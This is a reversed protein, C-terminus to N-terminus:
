YNSLYEVIDYLSNTRLNASSAAGMMTATAITNWPDVDTDTRAPEVPHCLGVKSPADSVEIDHGLLVKQTATSLEPLANLYLPVVHDLGTLM